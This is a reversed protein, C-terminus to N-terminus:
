GQRGRAAMAEVVVARIAAGRLPSGSSDLLGREQALRDLWAYADETLRVTTAPGIAPRGRGRTAAVAARVSAVAEAIDSPRAARPAVVRLARTTLDLRTQASVAEDGAVAELDPLLQAVADRRDDAPLDRLRGIEETLTSLSSM